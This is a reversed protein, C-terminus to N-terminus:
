ATSDEAEAVRREEAGGRSPSARGAGPPRRLLLFSGAFWALVLAFWVFLNAVPALGDRAVSLRSFTAGPNSLPAYAVWGTFPVPSTLYIGILWFIAALGVVAAIRQGLNLRDM